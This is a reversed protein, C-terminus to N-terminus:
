NAQFPYFGDNPKPETAVPVRPLPKDANAAEVLMAALIIAGERMDDAKLHDFTDVNTHHVTSGYDLPDQIFQFAPIGVADFFVHDTSGTRATVVHDADLSAFPALWDRFIPVVALNGQTYIGRLKGSGNDINFYAALKSHDALPTIPFARSWGMYRATGSLDKPVPRTAVHNEVYSMSGLLGQEEGAWLAFRIARRTKIGSAKIIRAAEMVMSVGAGNDAAGDGMAWSDMHAGAMVYGAKPDTGPIDALINYAKTDSDDFSNAASFEVTPAAGMKALRALRRYDEAAIEFAPLPPTAGVQFQSNQGHILKNNRSSMTAYALAGEEKLFADRAATFAARNPRRNAGSQGNPLEFKDRNAIEEETWRKFPADTAEAPDAPESVLVIAGKLKGKYQAFAAEDALPALVVPAAVPGNTGPTWALPAATLMLPRPSVMRLTAGQSTWGRGFEFGEKHVNVLGWERFKSQTWDEAKRMGASNTLRAGIVDTLYQAIRMVESRNTGEDVIRDVPTPATTQAALPAAVALAAVLAIPLRRM